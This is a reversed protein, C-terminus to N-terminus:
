PTATPAPMTQTAPLPTLTPARTPTPTVLNVAIKLVQGANIKNPDTIKNRKIIDDVTSNFKAAIIALTDGTQVTYDIVTGRPLGTPLPTATPLEQGPVPILIM